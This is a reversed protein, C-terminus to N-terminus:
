IVMFNMLNDEPILGYVNTVPAVDIGFNPMSWTCRESKAARFKSSGGGTIIIEANLAGVLVVTM